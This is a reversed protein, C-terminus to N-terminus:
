SSLSRYKHSWGFHLNLSLDAKGSGLTCCSHPQSHNGPFESLLLSHPCRRSLTPPPPLQPRGEAGLSFPVLTPVVQLLPNPTLLYSTTPATTSQTECAHSLTQLSGQPQETVEEKWTGLASLWLLSLGTPGPM